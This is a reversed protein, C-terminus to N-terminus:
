GCSRTMGSGRGVRKLEPSGLMTGAESSAPYEVCDEYLRSWVRANRPPLVVKGLAVEGRDYEALQILEGPKGSDTSFRQEKLSPMTPALPQPIELEPYKLMGGASVSSRYGHEFRTFNLSHSKYLKGVSKFAHGLYMSKTKSKSNSLKNPEAPPPKHQAPHELAFDRAKVNDAAGAPSFCRAPRSFSPFRTWSDAYARPPSTQPRSHIPDSIPAPQIPSEGPSQGSNPSSPESRLPDLREVSEMFRKRRPEVTLFNTDATSMVSLRKRAEYVALQSQLSKSSQKASSAGRLLSHQEATARLAREWSEAAVANEGPLFAFGYGSRRGSSYRDESGDMSVSEPRVQPLTLLCPAEEPIDVSADLDEKFRSQRPCSDTRSRSVIRHESAALERARLSDTSSQFSSTTAVTGRRGLDAGISDLPSAPLKGLDILSSNATGTPSSKQKTHLNKLRDLLNPSRIFSGHPSPLPSDVQSGYVSSSNNKVVPLWHTSGTPDEDISTSRNQNRDAKLSAQFFAKGQSSRQRRRRFENRNSRSTSAISTTSMLPSTASFLQASSSKSIDRRSTPRHSSEGLQSGSPAWGISDEGNIGVLKTEKVLSDRPSTSTHTFDRSDGGHGEPLRETYVTTPARRLWDGESIERERSHFHDNIPAHETHDSDAGSWSRSLRVARESSVTSPLRLPLLDPSLAIEIYDPHVPIESLTKSKNRLSDYRVANDVSPKRHRLDAITSRKRIIPSDLMNSVSIKKVPRTEANRTPQMGIRNRELEASGAELVVRDRSQIPENTSHNEELGTREITGLSELAVLDLRQITNNLQAPDITVDGSTKINSVTAPMEVLEADPDCGARSERGDQFIETRVREYLARKLENRREMEEESLTTKQTRSSNKSLNSDRSFRKRLQASLVSLSSNTKTRTAENLRKPSVTRPRGRENVDGPPSFIDHLDQADQDSKLSSLTLKSEHHAIPLLFQRQPGVTTM